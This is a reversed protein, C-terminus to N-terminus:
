AVAKLQARDAEMIASWMQDPGIDSQCLAVGTAEDRACFEFSYHMRHCPYCPTNKPTLSQCNIWDRTLNNRSSHSLTVIKTMDEFAVANLVGTEPGIVMDSQLSFALSQRISWIGSRRIVRPENEWGSELLQCLHDGVLVVRTDNDHLMLRAIIADLHPWTKHVASGALAWLIVRGGISRKEAASWEIEDETPYFKQDHLAPLYPIEAIDHMFELYNKDLYKRRMSDPWSHFMRGPMALLTAEVSESLNVFKDYKKAAHAWFEGLLPNPIQDKGQVIFADAHPDTKLIEHGINTTYVTVHYGQRKLGALVSATQLADGFAGYRVVAATKKPRPANCSYRQGDGGKRYCQFFSYERGESRDENEILDWAGIGRMIDIIDSPMFDHRHDPNAGPKGINPYHDRHPLYLMLYGGDNVVRWWETLASTTDDIHELLHSSFVFDMSGSAFMDLRECTEVVVDAGNTGWHHGNDVGIFHPFAKFLGCGLDLGRGNTYPVIDWRIKEAENGQPDEARWTM